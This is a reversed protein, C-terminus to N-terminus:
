SMLSVHQSQSSKLYVFIIFLNKILYLVVGGSVRIYVLPSCYLIIIGIVNYITYVYNDNDILNNIWLEFPLLYKCM